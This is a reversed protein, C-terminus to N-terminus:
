ILDEEFNHSRPKQSDASQAALELEKGIKSVRAYIDQNIKSISSLPKLQAISNHLKELREHM